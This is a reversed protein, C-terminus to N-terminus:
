KQQKMVKKLEKNFIEIHKQEDLIIRNLLKCIYKDNILSIHYKYNNIADIESKIDINLMDIIDKSYDVFCGNWPQNWTSYSGRYKPVLGLKFITEALLELHYMEVISICKIIEAYSKFNSEEASFHQYSYLSIETFESVYGSFDDMLIQGYYPNKAEVMPEPYPLDVKCDKLDM